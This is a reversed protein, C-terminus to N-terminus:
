KSEGRGALDSAVAKLFMCSRPCEGQGVSSSACRLDRGCQCVIRIKVHKQKDVRPMDRKEEIWGCITERLAPLRANVMSFQLRAIKTPCSLSFERMRQPACAVM